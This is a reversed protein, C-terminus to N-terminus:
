LVNKNIQDTTIDVMKNQGEQNYDAQFQDDLGFIEEGYDKQLMGSKPDASDIFIETDRPDMFIEFQFEGTDHLDIPKKKGKKKAYADSYEDSGTSIRFINKGDSRKGQLMQQVQLETYQERTEILTDQIISDVDLQQVAEMMDYVFSM